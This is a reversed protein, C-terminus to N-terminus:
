PPPVLDVPADSRVTWLGNCRFPVDPGPPQLGPDGNGRAPDWGPAEGRWEYFPPEGRTAAWEWDAYLGRAKESHFLQAAPSIDDEDYALLRLAPPNRWLHSIGPEDPENAIGSNKLRASRRRQSWRIWARRLDRDEIERASNWREEFWTRLSQALVEDLIQVNAEERRAQPDDNPMPLGAMSANASGLIVDNGNIWVKAHLRHLTLVAIGDRRLAAIPAPNCSGSLLDCIM